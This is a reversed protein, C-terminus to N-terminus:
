HGWYQRDDASYPNYTARGRYMDATVVNPSQVQSPSRAAGPSPVDSVSQQLRMGSPQGYGLGGIQANFGSHQSVVGGPNGYSQGQLWADYVSRQPQLPHAVSSPHSYSQHPQANHLSNQPSLASPHTYSHQQARVPTFASPRPPVGNQYSQTQSGTDPVYGQHPVDVTHGYGRAHAEGRATNWASHDYPHTDSASRSNFDRYVDRHSPIPAPVEPPPIGADRSCQINGVYQRRDASLFNRVYQDQMDRARLPERADERRGVAEPPQSALVRRGGSQLDFTPVQGGVRKLDSVYEDRDFKHGRASEFQEIATAPAVSLKQIMYKCVLYGTRNVGHTCHVGILKGDNAPNAVFADVARFFESVVGDSPIQQGVCMIKAHLIGRTVLSDPDYYRNTCTLDIVLGLGYIRQLLENPTFRKGVPVRSCISERLPVKFAIFRTGPVVGGVDSYDLWRDPVTKARGM